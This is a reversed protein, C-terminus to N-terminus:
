IKQTKLFDVPGLPLYLTQILDHGKFESADLLSNLGGHMNEKSYHHHIQTVAIIKKFWTNTEGIDVLFFLGGPKLVRYIEAVVTARINEPLHHFLLSCTVVDFSNSDFDMKDASNTVLTVRDNSLKQKTLRIMDSSPELGALILGPHRKELIALLSGTGCGVDLVKLRPTTPILAALKYHIIWGFNLFKAFDYTKAQFGRVLKSEM